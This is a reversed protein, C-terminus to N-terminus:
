FVDEKDTKAYQKKTEKVKGEAKENPQSNDYSEVLTFVGLNIDWSYLLKDGVPGFRQKKIGMELVHNNKQQISIVKSANRSIGDSDGMHELDPTGEEDRGVVGGRNAQNVVLVPVKMEMSLSMLDESINTLMTYKNDGRQAREDTLYTIGDVAICDLKYQKIWNKLKTVTIKKNFDLPTAVIFKNERQKLENIYSEYEDEKVEDKGWMLGKNSFNKHLTDFRYGISNASMEPSIYGVNFGIQWIHTCMKELVWSKGQNTRAFIVLLEEERQIGHIIDDLEPFGSTFFHQEQHEKREKYQELREEAQAIIDTSGINYNPQLDKMAHVMYESAANADTKLLEAIKQVVPVSKYYLYEERITDVLYRDSETVDVLETQPFKSLFTAKDPVNGYDKYHQILFGYEQEYGVFYDESLLNDEIISISGTQLVKSIIQLAVMYFKRAIDVM